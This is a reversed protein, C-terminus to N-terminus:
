LAQRSCAMEYTAPSPDAPLPLWRGCATLRRCLAAMGGLIAGSLLHLAMAAAAAAASGRRPQSRHSDSGAILTLNAVTAAMLAQFRVKDRGVYRAQRMGLQILRAIRHEVVQRQKRFVDFAASQQWARAAQLLGEQPHLDVCRGRGKQKFCSQRLPCAECIARDFQFARQGGGHGVLKNTVQGAPCRCTMMELDIEFQEKSFCEGRPRAAMKALLPIGAEAFRERNRGTGYACDGLAAEVELGTNAEAQQVLELSGEADQASGAMVEIATVVQSEVETAVALKHGDFRTSKNKRGHRMEPDHVSCVREGSTGERIAVGGEPKREVDQGLVQGLVESAQVLREDAESGPACGLRARRAMELVREADAVLQGLLAERAEADDWDIDAEGKVSSGLYHALDKGRAWRELQQGSRRALLRMVRVIGDALLNYTDKVAGRGLIGTTDLAVRVRGDRRLGGGRRAAELSAAFLAMEKKHTLLQARFLQLTSRVFPRELEGCGLAVKWRQDYAARDSAERDSCGGEYAQLVLAVCLSSPPVSPRGWREHYMGAFDDDRFLNHRERALFAYFTNRGVHDLFVQDGDFITAQPDRRGLV